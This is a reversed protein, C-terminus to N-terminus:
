IWYDGQGVKPSFDCGKDFRWATHNCVRVLFNHSNTSTNPAGHTCCEIDYFRTVQGLVFEVANGGYMCHMCWVVAYIASHVGAIMRSLYVGCVAEAFNSM